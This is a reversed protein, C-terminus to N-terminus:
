AFGSFSTFDGFIEQRQDLESDPIAVVMWPKLPDVVHLQWVLTANADATLSVRRTTNSTECNFLRLEVEHKGRGSLHLELQVAGIKDSEASLAMRIAHQPDFSIRYHRGDVLDLTSEVGGFTASHRGAPMLQNFRGTPIRVTKGTRHNRLTTAATAMGQIRAPMGCLALNIAVRCSAFVWLEKYPFVANNGWAPSDESYSNFGLSLGGVLNPLSVTFNQWYDYGVGYMVSRSFPNAGLVWQLQRASMEALDCRGRVQAACALGATKALHVVTAGHQIHNHWLPFVRLRTDATLHAGAQYMKLMQDKTLQESPATPFLPSSHAALVRGLRDEPLAADLDQRRWVAAPIIEFPASAASGRLCFYESYILLVAYWNMWDVHDPFTECLAQFPLLGCEDNGNHFEHVIRTRAPDEYFYGTIPSADIFQQEQLALLWRGFRVADARYTPQGSARYLEVAALTLYGVTDRWSGQNIAVPPPQEPPQQIEGVIDAYDEQAARLARAALTPDVSKVIRACTATAVVALINQYTDRGVNEQVVDDDTGPQSDTWYSYSGYLCRLGPGFRLRLSWELGWRAENLARSARAAQAPVAALQEYLRLLAYISLHTRGPGQTLNAADHWGGGVVRREGKFLVFVDLHCADHVGPVACGCRLGYFANLTADLVRDWVTEGIEFAESQAEGCRLRYTGPAAHSTFDLVKFRGRRNELMKAPFQAVVAGGAADILSFTDAEFDSCMAIKRAGPQYGIHSYAIKRPTVAWGQVPEVEVRELRLQDLDFVMVPEIGLFPVGSVPKFLVFETVQDRQYESIEWTLHNWQGSKLDGIYHIAIPDAPGASANRCLFQLCLSNIPNKSEHLYCWLSLRNFASWDQPTEFHLSASAAFPAGVFPVDAGVFSGNKARTAKIYDENRVLTRFRLSRNGDKARDSTYGLTVVPSAVWARDSEMDDILQAALVPKALCRVDLAHNLNPQMLPAAAPAAPVASTTASHAGPAAGATASRPPLLAAAAVASGSKLLTRRLANYRAHPFIGRRQRM